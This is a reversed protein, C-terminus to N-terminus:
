EHSPLADPSGPPLPTAEQAQPQAASVAVARPQGNPSGGKAGPPDFGVELDHVGAPPDALVVAFHRTAGAPIRGNLPRAIKTAVAAGTRDLLSIHLAPATVASDRQNRIAGSVALVARGGQFAPQAKVNEIALGLGNVPLGLGAYAGQAGPFSRVVASRFIIAGAVLTTVALAAGIWVAARGAGERKPRAAREARAPAIPAPDEPAVVELDGAYAEELDFPKAPAAPKPPAPAPPEAPAEPMATWRADCSSCKVSRGSAPIRGDDVFYSTGCEPCTLIM